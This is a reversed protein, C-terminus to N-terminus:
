DRCAFPKRGQRRANETWGPGGPAFYAQEWALAAKRTEAWHLIEGFALGTLAQLVRRLTTRPTGAQIYWWQKRRCFEIHSARHVRLAGLEPWHVAESYLGQITGEATIRLRIM